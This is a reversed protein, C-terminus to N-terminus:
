LVLTIHSQYQVVSRFLMLKNRESYINSVFCPGIFYTVNQVFIAANTNPLTQFVNINKLMATKKKM